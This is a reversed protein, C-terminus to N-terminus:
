EEHNRLESCAREYEDDKLRRSHWKPENEMFSVGKGKVTNLLVIEPGHAVSGFSFIRNILKMLEGYDHGDLEYLPLGYSPFRSRLDGNSFIKETRDLSMQKNNDLIYTIPLKHQVAFLMSETCVGENLEGDGIIVLVRKKNDSTLNSLALGNSFALGQGLSGSSIPFHSSDVDRKPHGFYKGGPKLYSETYHKVGYLYDLVALQALYCHGKSVIVEFEDLPIQGYYYKEVDKVTAFAKSYFLLLFDLISFIGGIHVGGVRSAVDLITKRINRQGSKFINYEM